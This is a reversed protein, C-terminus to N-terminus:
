FAYSLGVKLSTSSESISLNEFTNSVVIDGLNRQTFELSANLGLNKNFKYTAGGGLTVSREGVVGGDVGAYELEGLGVGAKVFPYLMSKAGLSFEKIVDLGYEGITDSQADDFISESYVVASYRVQAKWGGDSGIGLKLDVEKSSVTAQASDVGDIAATFDGEGFAINAGVYVGAYASSSALFLLGALVVSRKM